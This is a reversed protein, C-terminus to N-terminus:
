KSYFKKLHEDLEALDKLWLDGHWVNKFYEIKKRIEGLEKRLKELKDRTISGIPIKLFSENGQYPYGKQKMYPIIQTKKDRNKLILREEVVDMVFMYKLTVKKLKKELSSIEYQKRKEYIELRNSCWQCLIEFVYQFKKPKEDRDILTMNSLSIQEVLRLKDLTPAYMGNIKFGVLPPVEYMDFTRLIAKENNENYMDEHKRLWQKYNEISKGVPLETIFTTHAQYRFEGISLFVEHPEAKIRRIEGRYGKWYPILEPKSSIDITLEEKPMNRKERLEEIWEKVWQLVKFPDHPPIKTSWGTAIGEVRNVICMPIIPYMEKPEIREGEDYLYEWLPEDEKRYVYYAIQDLKCYLYRAPSKDKGKKRRTGYNGKKKVLPLNNPGTLYDQGLGIISDYLAVEGHHYGAHEMVYGAFQPVKIFDARNGSIGKPWRKFMCYLVKRHVPKMGDMLRPISRKVAALSYARFEHQFFDTVPRPTKIVALESEDYNSIWKKRDNARKKGEEFALSLVADTHPDVEYAILIPVQFLQQLIPDEVDWSGLGKYYDIRWKSLDEINDQWQLYQRHYYFPIKENGKKAEVVPTLLALAFQFPALSRLFQYVFNLLLGQIHNGDDDTDCMFIIKAYRLKNFNEPKTYDVDKEAGLIQMIDSIEKNKNIRDMKHRNVNMVVGQLPYVGNYNIGGPFYKLGSLALSCGTEGETLILSCKHAEGPKGAFVAENVKRVRVKQKRKERQKKTQMNFVKRLEEDLEWKTVERKTKMPIGLTKTINIETPKILKRKIQSEFEPNIVKMKLVVSVHHKIHKLTVTKKHKEKYVRKLESFIENLCANIHTGQHVPTGNVFAAIFGKGPTDAIYIEDYGNAGSWKVTNRLPDPELHHEFFKEITPFIFSMSNFVTEVNCAYAMGMARYLYAQHLSELWGNFNQDGYLYKFDPIFTIQTFGEGDYKEILPESCQQMGNQWVQKYLLKQVPDGVILSFVSSFINTLKIGYGNRGIKYRSISDDYNDSTLLVGFIMQPVWINEKHHMVVPIHKGYNKITLSNETMAIEIKGPHINELRSREVNDTANDFVEKCIGIIASSISDMSLQCHIKGDENMKATWTKERTIGAPSGIYMDPRLRIQTALALRQYEEGGVQPVFQSM